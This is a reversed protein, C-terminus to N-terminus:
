VYFIVFRPVMNKLLNRSILDVVYSPPVDKWLSIKNKFLFSPLSQNSVWILPSPATTKRKKNEASCKQNIKTIKDDTM